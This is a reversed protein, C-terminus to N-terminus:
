HTRWQPDSQLFLLLGHRTQGLAWLSHFLTTRHMLPWPHSSLFPCHARGKKQPEMFALPSDVPDNESFPTKSNLGYVSSSSAYVLKILPFPRLAELVQVFGHLNSHIYEEPHQSSHRVGAQAALHVIHSIAYKKLEKEMMMKDTIDCDSISIGNQALLRARERKLTPDYYANFNDCGFVVDGRKKLSLALHFGIFGAIGTIFIRKM